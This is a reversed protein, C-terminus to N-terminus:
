RYTLEGEFSVEGVRGDAYYLRIDPDTWGYKTALFCVYPEMAEFVGDRGFDIPFEVADYTRYWRDGCCPCDRDDECGNFYIGMGEAKEVAAEETEAEIFVRHCVYSNVHFSGGSNNQNFEYWNM